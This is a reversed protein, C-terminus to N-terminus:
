RGVQAGPHHLSVARGSLRAFIREPDGLDGLAFRALHQLFLDPRVQLSLVQRGDEAAHDARIEADDCDGVDVAGHVGRLKTRPETARRGPAGADAGASAGARSTPGTSSPRAAPLSSPGRADRSNATRERTPPPSM